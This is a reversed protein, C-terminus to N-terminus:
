EKLFDWVSKNSGQLFAKQYGWGGSRIAEHSVLARRVGLIAQMLVFEAVTEAYADSANIVPIGKEVCAEANFRKVSAGVIGVVKLSPLEELWRPDLAGGGRGTLIGVINEKQAPTLTPFSEPYVLHYRPTIKPLLAAIGSPNLVFLLRKNEEYTEQIAMPQPLVDPWELPGNYAEEIREALRLAFRGTEVAHVPKRSELIANAFELHEAYFGGHEIWDSYEKKLEHSGSCEVLNLGDCIFSFGAGHVAYAEQRAGASNNSSFVAHTGNEWRLIASFNQEPSETKVPPHACNLYVPPKGALFCLTDLAHIGNAGLWTKAGYPAAQEFAPKHFVAEM